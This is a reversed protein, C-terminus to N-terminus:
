TIYKLYKQIRSIDERSKENKAYLEVLTITKGSYIFSARLIDKNLDACDVRVKVVEYKNSEAQIVAGKKSAFFLKRIHDAPLGNAGEYLTLIVERFVEM